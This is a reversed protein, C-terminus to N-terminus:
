NQQGELRNFLLLNVEGVAKEISEVVFDETALDDYLRRVLVDLGTGNLFNEQM